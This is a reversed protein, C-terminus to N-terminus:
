EGIEEKKRDLEEDLDNLAAEIADKEEMGNRVHRKASRLLHKGWKEKSAVKELKELTKM